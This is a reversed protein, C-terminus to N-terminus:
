PRDVYNGDEARTNSNFIIDGYNIISGVAVIGDPALKM